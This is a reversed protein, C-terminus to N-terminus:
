WFMGYLWQSWIYLINSYSYVLLGRSCRLFDLLQGWPKHSNLIYHFDYKLETSFSLCPFSLYCWKQFFIICQFFYHSLFSWCNINISSLLNCQGFIFFEASFSCFVCLPLVCFLLELFCVFVIHYEFETTTLSVCALYVQLRLFPLRVGWQYFHSYNPGKQPPTYPHTLFCNMVLISQWQNGHRTPPQFSRGWPRELRLASWFQRGHGCNRRRHLSYKYWSYQVVSYQKKIHRSLLRLCRTKFEM